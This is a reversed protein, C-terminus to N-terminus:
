LHVISYCISSSNLFLFCISEITAFDWIEFHWFKHDFEFYEPHKVSWFYSKYGLYVDFAILYNHESNYMCNHM